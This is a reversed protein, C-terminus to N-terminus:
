GLMRNKRGMLFTFIQRGDRERSVRKSTSKCKYSVQFEFTVSFEQENFFNGISLFTSRFARLDAVM